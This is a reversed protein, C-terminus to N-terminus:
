AVNGQAPTGTVAIIGFPFGFGTDDYALFETTTPSLSQSPVVRFRTVDVGFLSVKRAPVVALLDSKQVVWTEEGTFGTSGFDNWSIVVKDDNIGIMPQDQVVGATNDSILYQAWTSSPDASTSVNLYVQSNNTNSDYSLGSVFWRGSPADYLVRPDTFAYGSPVPFFSNLDYAKVLTGSKTWVAGSSNVTEFLYTPGAALQTDPPAGVQDQGFWGVQQELSTAAFSTLIQQTQEGAVQIGKLQLGLTTVKIPSRQPTVGADAQKKAQEFEALDRPYFPHRSTSPTNTWPAPLQRVDVITPPASYGYTSAVAKGPTASKGTDMSTVEASAILSSPFVLALLVVQLLITFRVRPYRGM